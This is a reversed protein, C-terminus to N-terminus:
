FDRSWVVDASGAPATGGTVELSWSKTVQWELRASYPNEGRAPNAGTQASVGLYVSDTLYKGVDVKIRQFNDSTEFNLVDIPLKKALVNRLQSAALQGVVSVADEPTISAGSGRRLERRGTALLTYIESESMQPDSSTKLQVSTGKGVVTVTVKVKERENTHLAIVNVYPEKAPGGFRVQSGKQVQFERGIVSLSGRLITADGFLQATEAVEVRFAESLGLEVNLDSSRVWINRPANIIARVSRGPAEREGNEEAVAEKAEQRQRRTARKGDRLVIIDKPRALDQLNKRKVEPLEVDVRPIDISKLNILEGTIDGALAVKLSTTALLQDDNVIPFRDFTGDATLTFAGSALRNAKAQLSAAGAGARLRLKKLDVLDNTAHLELDIDRYDGFGFLGLRGKKWTADGVFAPSGLTGKVTGALTLKGDVVRVAPHVGSLFALDLERADLALAVAAQKWDLGHRLSKLRVDLGTTGKVKLDDRGHGGLALSLEQGTGTSKLEFRASGLAVKSFTLSQVSGTLRARPNELTGTVEVTASATGRTGQTGDTKPLLPELELPYLAGRLALPAEGAADLDDLKEVPMAVEADLTAAPKGALQIRSALATRADEATITFTADVGSVPPTKLRALDLELSGRPHRATGTLRGKLGVAGALEDDDILGADDLQHLDVGHVDVDVTVATDQLADASPPKARLGSLTFPTGVDVVAVGGFASTSLQLGLTADERTSVVVRPRDLTFRRPREGKELPKDDLSVDLSPAEVTLTAVPKEGTGALALEAGLVGRVPLRRKLLASVRETDVDRVVVKATLPEPKEDTIAPLSVDLDADVTGVSTHVRGAATARQGRWSGSLEVGVDTVGFAAGQRVSVTADIDPKPLRGLATARLALTGSLGWDQPAIIRPLRSLDVDRAEVRADLRQKALKAALTLRQAGDRLTLPEVEVAAGWAVHTPAEMAWAADSAKVEFTSLAVGERDEDLLGVAHLTVDGLGKTTFDVDWQRRHTIFDLRVEELAREGLQVRKAELLIDTDLPKTVDPLDADVKVQEAAVSAVRLTNLRGLAKVAPHLTPGTFTLELAGSGGLPPLDLELFDAVVKATQSLDKAEFRGGLDISTPSVTGHTNARVGPADVELADIALAGKVAKAALAVKALRGVGPAEWTASVTAEGTLSEARADPLSAKVSASVVSRRQVGLLEALDAKELTLTLSEVALPETTWAGAADLTASGARAELLARRPSGAGRAYLPVQLPWPPAFAKVTDPTLVLEQLALEQTPWELTARVHSDGLRLSVDAATPGKASSATVNLALPAALPATAKASLALTGDAQLTDLRLDVDATVDVGEVTMRPGLGQVDVAGHTLALAGVKVRWRVPQSPGPTPPAPHKAAVARSLNLGREDQKLYLRPAELEVRRLDVVQRALASLSLEATVSAVEAVLEGEPTYLKLGTLRLVNGELDLREFELTGALSDEVAATVQGRLWARGGDSQLWLWGGAPALLILVLSAALAALVRRARRRLVQRTDKM